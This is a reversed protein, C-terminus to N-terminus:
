ADGSDSTSIWRSPRPGPTTPTTSTTTAPSCRRRQRRVELCGRRQAYRLRERDGHVRRVGLAQRFAREHDTGLGCCGADRGGDGDADVLLKENGGFYGVSVRGLSVSDVTFTKAIKAYFVNFDTLDSKTGVDFVGVALAPSFRGFANEPVGIKLNGYMPYDDLPGLGSKHDLGVEM